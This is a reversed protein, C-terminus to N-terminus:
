RAVGELFTLQLPGEPDGTVEPEGSVRWHRLELGVQRGSGRNVPFGLRRITSITASYVRGTEIDIVAVSHAGAREAADLSYCDLCWASPRRLRHLSGRAEKSFVGGEIRGVVQGGVRVLLGSVNRRPM